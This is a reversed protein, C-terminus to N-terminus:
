RTQDKAWAIDEKLTEVTQRPALDTQQLARISRQVLFYGIGAVVLGVILAALWWPAVQGLLLVATAVIALFGAYAVLGGVALMAIERGVRTAKQSLETSALRVEQRVLTTLQQSLDSFLQGVSPEAVRSEPQM